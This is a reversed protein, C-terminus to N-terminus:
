RYENKLKNRIRLMLLLLIILIVIMFYIYTKNTKNNSIDKNNNLKLVSQYQKPKISKKESSVEDKFTSKKNEKSVENETKKKVSKAESFNKILTHVNDTNELNNLSENSDEM